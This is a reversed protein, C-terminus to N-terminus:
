AAMFAPSKLLLRSGYRLDGALANEHSSERGPTHCAGSLMLVVRALRRGLDQPNLGLVEPRRQKRAM